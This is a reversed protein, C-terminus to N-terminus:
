KMIKIIELERKAVNDWSYRTAFEKGRAKIKEQFNPNELIELVKKSFSEMDNEEIQFTHNGFIESYVPLNWSVVPLGCAMAELIAIGWGEEHSPFIFVKGQKLIGYGKEDDLFGMIEINDRLGSGNIKKELEEKINREVGGIIALRAKPLKRSVKKWIKVLDYIGKSPNLRGLFIGEFSCGSEQFSNLYELDIGNSSISIKKEDFGKKLLYKKTVQNMLIIKDAKNKILFFSFNQLCRGFFGIIKKGPRKKWDPYVHHIVQVWEVKKNKTKSIYAPIVEWFLDSTAYVVNKEEFDDSAPIFFVFFNRMILFFAKWCLDFHGNFKLDSEVTKYEVGLGKKKLDDAM